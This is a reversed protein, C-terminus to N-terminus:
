YYIIKKNAFITTAVTALLDQIRVGAQQISLNEGVPPLKHSINQAPEADQGPGFSNTWTKLRLNATIMFM